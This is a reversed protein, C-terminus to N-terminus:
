QIRCGYLFYGKGFLAKPERKIPAVYPHVTIGETPTHDQLHGVQTRGRGGWECSRLHM